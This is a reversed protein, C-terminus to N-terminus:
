RCEGPGLGAAQQWGPGPRSHYESVQGAAVLIADHMMTMTTMYSVDDLLQHGALFLDSRMMLM